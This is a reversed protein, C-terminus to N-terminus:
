PEWTVDISWNSPPAFTGSTVFNLPWLAEILFGPRQAQATTNPGGENRRAVFQGEVYLGRIPINEPLVSDVSFGIQVATDGSTDDATAQGQQIGFTPALGGFQSQLSASFLGAAVGTLFNTTEQSAQAASTNVGRQQRTTGTVLLAIVQAESTTPVNSKFEIKPDSLRGSVTVTVNDNSGRLTHRAVLDVQADMEPDGDFVMSGSRIEFRKGFVQFNGRRLHVKGKVSLEQAMITDLQADAEVYFNQDKSRIELKDESVLKLAVRYADSARKPEYTEGLVFVEPHRELDLPTASSAPIDIELKRLRVEGDIGDETFSAILRSSGRLRAMISGEQRLPFDKAEVVFDTDRLRFRKFGVRGDAKATGGADTAKLGSISVGDEDFIARGSVEELTQGVTRLNVRGDSLEVSGVFTPDEVRGQATVSGQLIGEVNVLGAMWALVAQLPMRDFDGRGVLDGQKALVPVPHESDWTLPVKATISTSGGNWWKMDADLAGVGDEYTAAIRSQSVPTEVITNVTGTHRAPELRRARLDDSELSFSVKPDDGFLGTARLKATLVGAAFRCLYPLNETPASYLDASVRTVPWAPIEANRLWTDLPTESSAQVDLVKADGVAGEMTLDTVGDVLRARVTARPNAESGCLGESSDSLWDISSVFDGRTRFAGGALTLSAALQLRDADPVVRGSFVEPFASLRRPPIRVSIRWPSTALAEVAETPERVFHVLSVLSSGETEVLEGHEDALRMRALLAGYEYRFESSLEIPGYKEITLAPIGINGKFSPADIPGSFQIRADAYGHVNPMDEEFILELLTLDMAATSLTTEYVGERLSAGVGGPLPDVFGTTSLTFNGRGGLDVQADMDLIGADYRALYAANVPSIDWLTADTLTGEAVITPEKDLDGRFEFHLDVVGTVDPADEPYLIKLVALDFNKIDAEIDDPGDFLWVGRAELRQAGKGMLIRDFSLGKEVDLTANRVSGRWSLDGVALEVTDVDLRYVHEDASVRAQFEARREGRAAFAGTVTYESPGGKLIAKGNGIPYGALRVLAGDLQLDLKPKAPDGWIRGELILFRASVAGYDFRDFRVWGHTEFDGRVTRRLQLDFEASGELDPVFREFNPDGRVEPINGRAHIETVGEFEAHGQLSVEGGAYKMQVSDIDIGDDRMRTRATLAPIHIEDYLFAETEVNFGLVDEHKPDSIIELKGGVEIEPVGGIVEALKARPSSIEIRTVGESPLDGKVRARGGATNLDGRLRYDGEPGWLRVWGTALGKLSEAWGFGVDYLTQARIPELRVFLDLDFPDEPASDEHPRYVIEATIHEDERSAQATVQTGRADTHVSGVVNDLSAEFPFPSVIRGNASWIEIDTIWYFEMRGKADLDVVRLNELGLLEGSVEINRVDMDDVIAHFPEGITPTQDAAEFAALFTPAGDGDDVLDVWGNTLTGYSFRLRGRLAAIPDIGLEVTEGYIIARGDPDYVFTDKVVSRWLRLQTIYGAHLTGVMQGSVFDNLIDRGLKRGLDTDLHFLVSVLLSVIAILPWGLFWTVLRFLWRM